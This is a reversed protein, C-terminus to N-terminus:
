VFNSVTYTCLPQTIIDSSLANKDRTTDSLVFKRQRHRTYFERRALLEVVLQAVFGFKM